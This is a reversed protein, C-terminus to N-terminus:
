YDFIIVTDFSAAFEVSTTTMSAVRAALPYQYQHRCLVASCVADELLQVVRIREEETTEQWAVGDSGEGLKSLMHITDECGLMVTRETTIPELLLTTLHSSAPTNDMKQPHRRYPPSRTHSPESQIVLVKPSLSLTGFVFM